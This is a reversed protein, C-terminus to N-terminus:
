KVSTARRQNPSRMMRRRLSTRPSGTCHASGGITPRISSNGYRSTKAPAGCRESHSGKEPIGLKMYANLFFGIKDFLSYSIRYAIKAKEIALSLAPRPETAQLFVDRDSFHPMKVTLGEYLLWRASAYERKMQYFFSAFMHPADRQVVHTPLGVSDATAVAYPGLDNLPNLYLYNVLCWHRYEREEVTGSIEQAALPDIGTAAIGKIHLV